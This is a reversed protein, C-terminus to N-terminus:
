GPVRARVNNDGVRIIKGGRVAVAEAVSDQSDVTIIKGNILALEAHEM